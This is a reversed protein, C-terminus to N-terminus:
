NYKLYYIFLFKFDLKLYFFLLSFFSFYFDKLIFIQIILLIFFLEYMVLSLGKQIPERGRDIMYSKTFNPQNKLVDVVARVYIINWLM